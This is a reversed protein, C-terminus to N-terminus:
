SAREIKFHDLDINKWVGGLYDHCVSFAFLKVAQIDTKDTPVLQSTASLPGQKLYEKISVSDIINPDIKDILQASMIKRLIRKIM